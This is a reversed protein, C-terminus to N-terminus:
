ANVRSQTDNVNRQASNVQSQAANVDGQESNVRGQHSNLYSQQENVRSQMANVDDQMANVDDQMANVKKQPAMADELQKLVSPDTVIYEHGAKEFWASNEGYGARLSEPNIDTASNWSGSISDGHVIIYRHIADSTANTETVTASTTQSWLPMAAALMLATAFSPQCSIRTM